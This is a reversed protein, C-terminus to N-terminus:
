SSNKANTDGLLNEFARVTRKEGDVFFRGKYYYNKASLKVDSEYAYDIGANTFAVRWTNRSETDRRNAANGFPTWFYSKKHKGHQLLAKRVKAEQSESLKM